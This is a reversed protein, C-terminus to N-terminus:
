DKAFTKELATQFQEKTVGYKLLILRQKEDFLKIIQGDKFNNIHDDTKKSDKLQKTVDNFTKAYELCLVFIQYKLEELLRVILIRDLPKSGGKGKRSLYLSYGLM